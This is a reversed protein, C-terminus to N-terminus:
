PAAGAPAAEAPAAEAPAEGSVPAASATKDTTKDTTKDAAKDKKQPVFLGRVRAGPAAYVRSIGTAMDVEARSGDLQNDGRTVKVNGTVTAEDTIPNYVGEDGTVVDSVTVLVVHGKADLRELKQKKDGTDAAANGAPTSQPTTAGTDSKTFKAAIVDATLKDDGRIAVADGRAVGTQSDEFYELSDRATIVEATTVLKLAKGTLVVIHQALDYM